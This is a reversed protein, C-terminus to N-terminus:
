NTVHTADKMRGKLLNYKTELRRDYEIKMSIRKIGCHIANHDREYIRALECVRYGREKLVKWIMQRAEVRAQQRTQRRIDLHCIGFLLCAVEDAIQIDLDYINRSM